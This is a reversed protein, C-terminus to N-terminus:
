KSANVCYSLGIFVVKEGPKITFTMDKLVLGLGPRYRTSYHQYEVEGYQPWTKGPDTSPLTWAAQHHLLLTYIDFRAPKIQRFSPYRLYCDWSYCMANSFEKGQSGLSRPSCPLLKGWHWHSLIGQDEGCVGHVDWPGCEYTCVHELICIVPFICFLLVM